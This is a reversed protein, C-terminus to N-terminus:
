YEFPKIKPRYIKPVPNPVIQINKINNGSMKLLYKADAMGMKNYQADDKEDGYTFPRTFWQDYAEGIKGGLLDKGMEVGGAGMIQLSMPVGTITGTFGAHYNGVDSADAFNVNSATFKTFNLGQGGNYARDYAWALGWITNTNAKLDWIGGGKVNNVWDAGSINAAINASELLKNFFLGTANMDITGGLNGIGTISASTADHQFVSVQQGGEPTYSPNHSIINGTNDIVTQQSVDFAKGASTKNNIYDPSLPGSEVTGDVNLLRVELGELEVGDIVRNESFAYPSNHPYKSTLPDISLFRGLRADHV